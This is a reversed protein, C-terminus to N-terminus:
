LFMRRLANDGGKSWVENPDNGRYKWIECEVNRKLFENRLWRSKKIGTEDNDYAIYIKSPRKFYQSIMQMSIQDM